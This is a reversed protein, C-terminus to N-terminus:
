EQWRGTLCHIEHKGIGNCLLELLRKFLVERIRKMQLWYIQSITLIKFAAPILELVVYVWVPNESTKWKAYIQLQYKRTNLFDWQLTYVPVIYRYGSYVSIWILPKWCMKSTFSLIKLKLTKNTQTKKIVWFGVSPGCELSFMM